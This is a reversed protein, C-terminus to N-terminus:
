KIKSKIKEIMKTYILKRTEKYSDSLNSEELSELKEKVKNIYEKYIKNKTEQDINKYKEDTDIEDIRKSIKETVANEIKEALEEKNSQIKEKLYNVKKDILNQNKLIEEILDKREKTAQINHKIHEVFDERKEIDVYKAIYRYFNAKRILIQKKIEDTDKEQQIKVKLEKELLDRDEIYEEIKDSIELIEDESLDNKIFWVLEKYDKSVERSDEELKKEEKKLKEVSKWLEKITTWDSFLENKAHTEGIFFLLTVILLIIKRKM